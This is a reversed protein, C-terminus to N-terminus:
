KAAALTRALLGLRREMNGPAECAYRMTRQVEQFARITLDREGTLDAQKDPPTKDIRASLDSITDSLARQRRALQEIRDILMGREDNTQDVIAGFLAPAKQTRQDAPLTEIYTKLKAQAEADTIDRDTVDTVIAYTTQDDRWGTSAPVPPGAWYSGPELKTVLRQVCPWDPNQPPPQATASTITFAASFSLSVLFTRSHGM